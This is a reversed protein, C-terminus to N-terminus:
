WRIILCDGYYTGYKKISNRILEYKTKPRKNYKNILKKKRITIILSKRIQRWNRFNKSKSHWM